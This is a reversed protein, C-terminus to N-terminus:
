GDEALIAKAKAARESDDDALKTMLGDAGSGDEGLADILRSAVKGPLRDLHQQGSSWMVIAKVQDKTLGGAAFLANLKGRQKATAPRESRTGGQARAQPPPAQSPQGKEDEPDDGISIGLLHIFAYKRAGTMAKYIAKDGPFDSGYGIATRTIKERGESDTVTLACVAKVILGDSGQRSKIPTEESEVCEFEALVGRALLARTAAAAIDEARVYDYNQQTNKGKKEVHEVDLSAAVLKATLGEPERSANAADKAKQSIPEGWM